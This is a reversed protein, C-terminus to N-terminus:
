SQSNQPFLVFGFFFMTFHHIVNLSEWFKSHEWNNNRSEELHSGTVKYPNILRWISPRLNILKKGSMENEEFQQNM